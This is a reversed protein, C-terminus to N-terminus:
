QSPELFNDLKPGIARSQRGLQWCPQFYSTTNSSNISRNAKGSLNLQRMLAVITDTHLSLSYARWDVFKDSRGFGVFDPAIVRYGSRFLSFSCYDTSIPWNPGAQGFCALTRLFGLFDSFDLFTLLALSGFLSFLGFPGFLSFLGLNVLFSWFM